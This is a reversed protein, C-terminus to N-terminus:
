KKTVEYFLIDRYKSKFWKIKTIYDRTKFGKVDEIVTNGASDSYQFDAIYYVARNKKGTVDIFAEHLLFKPQLSLNSIRGQKELIKLETYRKMEAKSDFTIGNITRQSSDSVNYKHKRTIMNM